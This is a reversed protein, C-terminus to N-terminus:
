FAFGLTLASQVGVSTGAIGFLGEMGVTADLLLLETSILELGAVGALLFGNDREVRAYGLALGLHPNLFTRRGRGLYDSYADFGFTATLGDIDSFVEGAPALFDLEFHASRLLYLSLGPGALTPGGALVDLYSFRVGPHFKPAPAFVQEEPDPLLTLQVTALEVQDTLFAREGKLREIEGQLRTLEKEVLLIEEVTKAETLISRYRALAQEMNALQIDLDRYERTVDTITIQRSTLRGLAALGSLFAEVRGPPLRLVFSGSSRPLYVEDRVVKGDLSRTLDRVSVAARALDPVTLTARAEIVLREEASGSGLTARGSGGSAAPVGAITAARSAQAACGGLVVLSSCLLSCLFLSPRM